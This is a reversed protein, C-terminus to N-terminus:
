GRKGSKAAAATAGNELEAAMARLLGSLAARDTKAGQLADLRAAIAERAAALEGRLEKRDQEARDGIAKATARLEEVLKGTAQGREGRENELNEELVHFRHQIDERLVRAEDILRSELASFRQQYDRMQPGFLIDRIQDVSGLPPAAEPAAQPERKAKASM